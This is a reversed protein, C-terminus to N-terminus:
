SGHIDQAVLKKFISHIVLYDKDTLDKELPIGIILFEKLKGLKKLYKLQFGLDYDHVSSSSPPVINKLNSEDFLKPEEIGMVSDLMVLRKNEDIKEVPIDQNPKVKEFNIQPFDKKIKDAVEFAKKDVFHDENGFVLVLM